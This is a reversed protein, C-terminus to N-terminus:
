TRREAALFAASAGPLSWAGGTCPAVVGPGGYRPDDSSWVLWRSAGEPPALLPEPAPDYEIDAGLNVLVLRGDGCGGFLRVVLAAPGLAAGDIRDRARAAAVRDERRLRLLDQHLRYLAGHTQRESLDLKSGAFTSPAGPAPVEARAAPSGYSRFRSLFERRGELVKRALAEEHDAFFLFPSSAGFEQGMFLLPTEPAPLLLAAMARYRAPGALAHIREGRPHNAVQDHNQLYFVFASAPQGTVASGRPGRQWRYWQGQYLFGRKLASIPERPDGRYDAYRAERRGTLAVRAAHHFDDSWMADLGYGGEAVPAPCITQQPENEAILVITRDGAAERARRSLEALVHLPSADLMQQTADLRLGDLHFEAVRYCANRAFFERVERSGPGDFDIAEGRESEDRDTFCADSCAQPHTGAPGLHSRAVDLIVGPGHAHAADVLRELAEPNRYM